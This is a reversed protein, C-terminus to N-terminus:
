VVNACNFHELLRYKQERYRGDTINSLLDDCTKREFIYLIKDDKKILIDGISLQEYNVNIKELNLKPIIEKIANERQDIVLQM